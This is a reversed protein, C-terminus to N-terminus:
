RRQQFALSAQRILTMLLKFEQASIKAPRDVQDAYVLGICNKNAIIPFIVLSQPDTLETCWDPISGRFQGSGVDLIVHEKRKVVAQNFVDQYNGTKFKFQPILDAIDAGHGSRAQMLHRKPDRIMLIVHSFAMGNYFASTVLEFVENISIDELLATSLEALTNVLYAKRDKPADPASPTTAPQPQKSEQHRSERSGDPKPSAIRKVVNKFFDASQVDVSLVDAYERTADTARAIMERLSKPEIEACDAFRKSLDALQAQLAEDSAATGVAESLENAFAAMQATRKTKSSARKVAGKKLPSMASLLPDPLNWDRGVALGFEAFSTGFVEKAAAAEAIGKSAILSRIENYEEPFYYIALHRGLRHFMSGIFAEEADIDADQEGLERALMASLFSSCTADKLVDAQEGNQLHEFVAISLAAARVQDFGLIVVARSVTSITGGYQGYVASNVLRLLKSTLAYDKLVVNGLESADSGEKNGAKQNIESIFRSVAPFDPKRAARHLMFDIASSKGAGDRQAASEKPTIYAELAAKMQTASQYRNEIERALGRLVIADLDADIARNRQSPPLIKENVIKYVVAVQSDASFLKRGTLMEYFITAISFVDSHPGVTGSSLCEPALYNATGVLEAATAGADLITSIGFDLIQAHEETDVVINGPSLDRHLVGRDHACSIADLVEIIIEIARKIPLGDGDSLLSALPKGAAYRYVLYPNEGNFEFEYLPVIGPHDLSAVNKAEDVLRRRDRGSRSLTKIAVQRELKPDQALYVIGQGGSGLIKLPKFRGIRPPLAGTSPKSVAANVSM